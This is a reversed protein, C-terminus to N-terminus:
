ENVAQENLDAWTTGPPLTYSRGDVGTITVPSEVTKPADAVTNGAASDSEIAEPTNDEVGPPNDNVSTVTQATVTNDSTTGTININGSDPASREVGEIITETGTTDKPSVDGETLQTRMGMVVRQAPIVLTVKDGDVREVVAQGVTIGSISVETTDGQKM